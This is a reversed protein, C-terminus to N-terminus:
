FRFLERAGGTAFGRWYPSREEWGIVSGGADSHKACVSRFPGERLGRQTVAASVIRSTIARAEVLYGM